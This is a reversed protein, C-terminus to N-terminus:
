AAPQAPERPLIRIQTGDDLLDAWHAFRLWGDVDDVIALWGGDTFIVVEGIYDLPEVPRGTQGSHGAPRTVHARRGVINTTIVM